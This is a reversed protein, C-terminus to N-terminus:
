EMHRPCHPEHPCAAGQDGMWANAPPAVTSTDSTSPQGAEVDESVSESRQTSTIGSVWAVKRSPKRHEETRATKRPLSADDTETAIQGTAARRFQSLLRSDKFRGATPHMKNESQQAQFQNFFDSRPGHCSCYCSAARSSAKVIKAILEAMTLEIHLKVLYALPHFCVYLFTNSLSMMSIILIDMTVSLCICALNFRYLRVYKTLGYAILSSRVLYVFLANLGVDIVALMIKETRDWYGNIVMWRRSLQLRAPIWICAVSINILLCIIFVSWQLRRIM